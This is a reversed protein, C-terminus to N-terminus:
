KFLVKKLHDQMKTGAQIPSLEEGDISKFFAQVAEDFESDSITISREPIKVECGIWDPAPKLRVSIENVATGFTGNRFLEIQNRHIYLKRNEM